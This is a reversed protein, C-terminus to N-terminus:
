IMREFQKNTLVKGSDSVAGKSGVYWNGVKHGKNKEIWVEDRYGEPVEDLTMGSLIEEADFNDLSVFERGKKKLDNLKKEILDITATQWEGDIYIERDDVIDEPLENLQFDYYGEFRGYNAFENGETNGSSIDVRGENVDKEKFCAYYWAGSPYNENATKRELETLEKESWLKNRKNIIRGETGDYRVLVYIAERLRKKDENNQKKIIPKPKVIRRVPRLKKMKNLRRTKAGKLGALVHRKHDKSWGKPKRTKYM